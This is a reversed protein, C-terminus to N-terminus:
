LTAKKKLKEVQVGMKGTAYLVMRMDEYRVNFQDFSISDLEANLDINEGSKGREVGSYILDPISDIFSGVPINLKTLVEEIIEDHFFYDGAEILSESTNNVVFDFGDVSLERTQPNFYPRGLVEIDATIDGSISASILLFSDVSTLQVSNLKINQDEVKFEIGYVNEKLLRNVMDYEIVIPLYLKTKANKTEDIILPPFTINTNIYAASDFVTSLTGVVSLDIALQDDSLSFNRLIVERTDILIYVPQVKRNIRIPNSLKTWTKLLVKKLDLQSLQSDILETIRGAEDKIIDDVVGSLDIENGLIKVVARDVWEVKELETKSSLSYDSNPELDSNLLPKIKFKSITGVLEHSVTVELPISWILQQKNGDLELQGSRNVSLKLGAKIEKNVVLKDPIKSNIITQIESLPLAIPVSLESELVNIDGGDFNSDRQNLWSEQEQCGIMLFTLLLTAVVWKYTISQIM